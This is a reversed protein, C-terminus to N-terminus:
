NGDLDGGNIKVLFEVQEVPIKGIANQIIIPLNQASSLIEAARDKQHHWISGWPTGEYFMWLPSDDNIDSFDGSSFCGLEFLGAFDTKKALFEATDNFYAENRTIIQLPIDGGSTKMLAGEPFADYILKVINFNRAHEYAALHLAIANGVFDNSAPGLWEVGELISKLADPCLDVM